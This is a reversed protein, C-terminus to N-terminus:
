FSLHTQRIPHEIIDNYYHAFLNDKSKTSGIEIKPRPVPIHLCKSAKDFTKFWFDVLSSLEKKSATKEEHLVYLQQLKSSSSSAFSSCNSQLLSKRSSKRVLVIRHQSQYIDFLNHYFYSDVDTEDM